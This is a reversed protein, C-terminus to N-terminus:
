RYIEGVVYRNYHPDLEVRCKGYDSFVGRIVDPDHCYTDGSYRGYHDPHTWMCFFFMKESLRLMLQLYYDFKDAYKHGGDGFVTYAEALEAAHEPDAEAYDSQLVKRDRDLLKPDFKSRPPYNLFSPARCFVVDYRQHHDLADGAIFQTRRQIPKPLRARIANAIRVPDEYQEIGTVDYWESLLWSWFGDGSGIDLCTGRFDSLSTHAHLWKREEVPNYGYGGARYWKDYLENTEGLEELIPRYEEQRNAYFRRFELYCDEIPPEAPDRFSSLDPSSM